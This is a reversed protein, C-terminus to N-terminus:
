PDKEIIQRCGKTKTQSFSKKIPIIAILNQVSALIPVCTCALNIYFFISAM